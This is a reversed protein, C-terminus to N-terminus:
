RFKKGMGSRWSTKRREEVLNWMSRNNKVLERRMAEFASCLQGLEDKEGCEIAFDLDNDAIHGIGQRLARLPAKLKIQYFFTGACLIGLLSFAIPLVVIFLEMARCLLLERHTYELDDDGIAIEGAEVVYRGDERSIM